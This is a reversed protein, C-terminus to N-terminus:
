LGPLFKLMSDPGLVEGLDHEDVFNGLLRVIEGALLSEKSGMAKELLCGDVLECHTEGHDNMFVVDKEKATGPKPQLLIREAPIAGFHHRLKTMTWTPAPYDSVSAM